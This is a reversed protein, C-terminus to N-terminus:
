ARMEVEMRAMSVSMTSAVVMESEDWTQLVSAGGAQGQMSQVSYVRCHEWGGIAAGDEQYGFGRLALGCGCSTEQGGSSEGDGPVGEGSGGVGPWVLAREGDVRRVRREHKVCAEAELARTLLSASRTSKAELARECASARGEAAMATATAAAAAGQAVHAASEAKAVAAAAASKEQAIKSEWERVADTFRGRM